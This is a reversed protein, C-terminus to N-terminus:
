KMDLICSQIYNESYVFDNDATSQIIALLLDSSLKKEVQTDGNNVIISSTYLENNKFVVRLKANSDGQMNFEVSFEESNTDGIIISDRSLMSCLESYTLKDDPQEIYNVIYVTEILSVGQNYEASQEAIDNQKYEQLQYEASQLQDKLVGIEQTQSRIRSAFVM